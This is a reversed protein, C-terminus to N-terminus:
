RSSAIPETETTRRRTNRRARRWARWLIFSALTPATCAALVLLADLPGRLRSVNWTMAEIWTLLADSAAAIALIFGLKTRYRHALLMLAMCMAVDFAIWAIRVLESPFWPHTPALVLAFTWPVLLIALTWLVIAPGHLLTRVAFSSLNGGAFARLSDLVATFTTVSPPHSIFVPEWSSPALKHKFSHLGAFDYLPKSLSGVRRMWSPVPGALPALGLTIWTSGEAAAQLMMADILAETTGNPARPDRIFDEVFWGNRAYVPVASLFAVIRGDHEAAFARREAAFTFPQVHVLFSMPSMRRSGLWREILREIELRIPSAPDSLDHPELRRIRVGKNSARRLQYALSRSSAVAGTWTNPDWIPQLGVPVSVLSTSSALHEQSAFFVARRRNARAAEVFREAVPAIDDLAAIPAGAAVWARGTDAYAVCADAGADWWHDLGEELAQFSTTNFGHRRLLELVRLQDQEPDTVAALTRTEAEHQM